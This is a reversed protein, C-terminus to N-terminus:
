RSGAPPKPAYVNCWGEPSIVGEVTKCGGPPRWQVCTDCRAEGKPQDQYAVAKQPMRSQAVARRPLLLSAALAGTAAFLVAIDTFVRRRSRDDEGPQVTDQM